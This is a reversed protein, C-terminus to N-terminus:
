GARTTDRGGRCRVIRHLSTSYSHFKECRADIKVYNRTKNTNCTNLITTNQPNECPFRWGSHPFCNSPKKCLQPLHFAHSSSVIYVQRSYRCFTRFKSLCLFLALSSVVLPCVRNWMSITIIWYRAPIEDHWTVYNFLSPCTKARSQAVDRRGCSLVRENRGLQNFNRERYVIRDVNYRFILLLTQWAWFM